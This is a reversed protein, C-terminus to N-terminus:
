CKEMLPFTNLDSKRLSFHIRDFFEHIENRGIVFTYCWLNIFLETTNIFDAQM